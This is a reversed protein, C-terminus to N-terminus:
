MNTTKSHGNVNIKVCLAFNGATLFRSLFVGVKYPSGLFCFGHEVERRISDSVRKKEGLRDNISEALVGDRYLATGCTVDHCEFQRGVM